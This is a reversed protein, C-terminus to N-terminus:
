AFVFLVSLVSSFVRFLDYTLVAFFNYTGLYCSDCIFYDYFICPQYKRPIAHNQATTRLRIDTPGDHPLLVLNMFFFFFLVIYRFALPRPIYVNCLLYM